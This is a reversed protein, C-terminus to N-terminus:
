DTRFNISESCLLVKGDQKWPMAAVASMASTRGSRARAEEEVSLWEDEPGEPVEPPVLPVLPLLVLFVTTDILRTGDMRRFDDTALM